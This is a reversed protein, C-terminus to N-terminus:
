ITLVGLRQFFWDEPATSKYTIDILTEVLKDSSGKKRRHEVVYDYQITGLFHMGMTHSTDVAVSDPPLPWKREYVQKPTTSKPTDKHSLLLKDNKSDVLTFVPTSGRVTMKYLLYAGDSVDLFVASKEHGGNVTKQVAM